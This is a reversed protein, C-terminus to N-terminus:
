LQKLQAAIVPAVSLIQLKPFKKNEPIDITDTVFVQKVSSSQLIKKSEDSFVPHTAFVFIEKVGKRKLFDSAMAITGGSSIMDDVIIVRDYGDLGKSGAVSVEGTALDREKQISAFPMGNLLDSLIKVRRIGGMDPSVLVTSNRNWKEKKIKEAFIPLASLHSMPVKFIDQIRVSHLDFAVLKDIKLAELMKVVVDLSVAEGDRFVHDQRQYGLYPIVVTVSKAGSRQLGDVIFFLEMYNDPAPTSTPQIVATHKDVVKELIRIRKEGDPFIHIEPLSLKLKLEKAVKEALPRNSTGSFLKM